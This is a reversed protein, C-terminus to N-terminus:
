AKGLLRRGIVRPIRTVERILRARHRRPWLSLVAVLARRRQRDNLPARKVAVLLERLLRWTPFVVWARLQPNFWRALREPTRNAQWSMQDHIRRFFLADPLEVFKGRLVLEVLMVLDSSHYNDIGRTQRLASTKILGFIPNAWKIFKLCHRLRLIPDDDRLDLCNEVIDVEVGQADIIRTKPYVLVVDDTSQDFARLCESLMQPHILDDHSAWRFYEGRALRLVCQFNASGGENRTMTHLRIRPHREAWTSLIQPTTDTSANDSVILEFDGYEQEFISKLSEDLYRQGNYVPLGITVKPAFDSSGPLM